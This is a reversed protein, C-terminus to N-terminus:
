GFGGYDGEDDRKKAREDEDCGCGVDHFAVAGL